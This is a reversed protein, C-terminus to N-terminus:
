KLFNGRILCLAKIRPNVPCAQLFPHLLLPSILVIIRKKCVRLMVSIKAIRCYFSLSLNH